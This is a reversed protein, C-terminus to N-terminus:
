QYQLQKRGGRHTYFHGPVTRSPLMDGRTSCPHFLGGSSSNWNTHQWRTSSRLTTSVVLTHYRHHNCVVVYKHLLRYNIQPKNVDHQCCLTVAPLRYTTGYRKTYYIHLVGYHAYMNYIFRLVLLSVMKYHSNVSSFVDNM